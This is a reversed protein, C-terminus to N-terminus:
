SPNPTYLLCNLYIFSMFQLMRNMNIIPLNTGGEVGYMSSLAGGGGGKKKKSFFINYLSVRGVKECALRGEVV